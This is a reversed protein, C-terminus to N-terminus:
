GWQRSKKGIQIREGSLRRLVFLSAWLCLLGVSLFVVGGCGESEGFLLFFGLFFVVVSLLLLGSLAFVYGALENGLARGRLITLGEGGVSCKYRGRALERQSVNIRGDGIVNSCRCSFVIQINGCCGRMWVCDRLSSAVVVM